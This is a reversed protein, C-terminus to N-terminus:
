VDIYEFTHWTFGIGFCMMKEKLKDIAEKNLPRRRMVPHTLGNYWLQIQARVQRPNIQEILQKFLYQEGRRLRMILEMRHKMDFGNFYIYNICTHDTREDVPEAFPDYRLGHDRVYARCRREIFDVAVPPNDIDMGEIDYDYEGADDAYGGLQIKEKWSMNTTAIDIQGCSICMRAFNKIYKTDIDNIVSQKYKGNYWKCTMAWIHIEDTYKFVIDAIERPVTWPIRDSESM